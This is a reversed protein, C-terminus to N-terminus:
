RVFIGVLYALAFLPYIGQDAALFSRDRVTGDAFAGAHIAGAAGAASFALIAIQPLLLLAAWRDLCLAAIASLASAICIAAGGRRGVGIHRIGYMATINMVSASHLLAAGCVMHHASAMVIMVRM